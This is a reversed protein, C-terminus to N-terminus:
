HFVPKISSTFYYICWILSVAFCLRRPLRNKPLRLFKRQRGLKRQGYFFRMGRLSRSAYFHRWAIRWASRLCFSYSTRYLARTTQL